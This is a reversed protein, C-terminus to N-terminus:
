PDGYYDTWHIINSLLLTTKWRHSAVKWRQDQWLLCCPVTTHTDVLQIIELSYYLTTGPLIKYYNSRYGRNYYVARSHVKGNFCTLWCTHVVKFHSDIQFQWLRLFLFCDVVREENKNHYILFFGSYSGPSSLAITHYFFDSREADILRTFSTFTQHM